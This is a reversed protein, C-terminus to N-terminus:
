APGAADQLADLARELRVGRSAKLLVVDEARLNKQLWASAEEPSDLFLAEAGAARAGAVISAAQGRVGLVLQVGCAAMRRGCAAHLQPAEPGLELMEGAVVIRRKAPIGCLVDVMADLAQPNSNYCDNLLTAGRFHLLQGRKEAPTLTALASVCDQLPAGAAMGVAIAPLVNSVNHKGLLQLTIEAQEGGAAVRFRTGLAGLSQINEARLDACHGMGFYMATGSFDRGFQSVYADDCNLFAMGHQPLAEILEYKARAIGALGDPFNESHVMSVNTVVGWDPSAIKALAAIEGSHSMGLEVVAVEHGPQLRLLQLPLGYGNNLNGQSKLVQFQTGLVHAIAEKTTTKGASGTVAVLRKGWHRRVDHALSQLAHLTDEVVLLRGQMAPGTYRGVEKHAVVAAVAGSALADAVFDHGNMREGHIAFFLEGPAITRSDISHGTVVADQQAPAGLPRADTWSCVQELTLQM